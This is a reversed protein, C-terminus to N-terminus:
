SRGGGGDVSLGFADVGGDGFPSLGLGLSLGLDFSVGLDLSLGLSPLRDRGEVPSCIM